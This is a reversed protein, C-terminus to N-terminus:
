ELVTRYVELLKSFTRDWSYEEAWRRAARGMADRDRSLVDRTAEALSAPDGPTFTRGWSAGALREGVAGSAAGIVPLGSAAAELTALGFTEHADPAIFVDASAYARALRGRDSEFGRVRVVEPHRQELAELRRRLQGEGFMVLTLGTRSHLQPLIDALSDIQKEAALRGVYLGVPRDDQIGLETRWEHSRLDPRFRALDVGMPVVFPDPLGARLVSERTADSAVVLADCLAYASRAYREAIRTAIGVVAPATRAVTQRVAARLDMHMFGVIKFLHRRSARRLLWPAAYGSGLEVIDPQETDVIESFRGAKWLVHYGPSGPVAPGEITYVTTGCVLKCGDADGPVVLVHAVDDQRSLWDAKAALYTRVGGGAQSYFETLDLIKLQIGVRSVGRDASRLGAGM